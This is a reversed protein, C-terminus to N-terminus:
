RGVRDPDASCDGCIGHLVLHGLDAHFGTQTAVSDIAPEVGEASVSSVGGCRRCVLHIHPVADVAHYTPSGSGLHAHTLLGVDNLTELTRYATSLDLSEGVESAAHTLEDVNLHRSEQVLELVLLRAATARLGARRLQERLADRTM